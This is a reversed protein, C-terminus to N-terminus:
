IASRQAVGAIEVVSNVNAREIIKVILTQIAEDERVDSKSSFRQEQAEQGEEVIFQIVGETALEPADGFYSISVLPYGKFGKKVLKAIRKKAKDLNM